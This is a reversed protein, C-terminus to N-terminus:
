CQKNRELLTYIDPFIRFLYLGIKKKKSIYQSKKLENFVRKYEQWLKRVIEKEKLYKKVRIRYAVLNVAYVFEFSDRLDIKEQSEFFLYREKAIALFDLKKHTFVSKTISGQRMYYGYVNAESVAVRKAKNFLKYTTAEDENIKGYPFEVDEFLQRLYLKGWAVVYTVYDKGFLRWLIECGNLVEENQKNGDVFTIKECFIQYQGMSIEADNKVCLNYLLEICNPAMVDDSDVFCVYKGKAIKLGSNRADSLGGNKKHIVKIRQDQKAYRDCISGSNDTSGDDVLIVEITSYTQNLVSTLCREIYEEVNYVPIIVSISEM